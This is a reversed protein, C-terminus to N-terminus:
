LDPMKKAMYWAHLALILWSPVLIYCAFSCDEKLFKWLLLTIYFEIQFVVVGWWRGLYLYGMGPLVFNLFASVLPNKRVKPRRSLGRPIYRLDIGCGPAAHVAEWRVQDDPDRLAAYLPPIVAEDGIQGLTRVAELRIDRDKDKLALSLAPIADTGLRAACDWDQRGVFLYAEEKPNSPRWGLKSLALAAGYRVYRDCDRLTQELPEIASTDGIEGLALAAEWRIENDRDELLTIIPNVTTPDRIEGLAEVAGLRIDKNGSILAELLFDVVEQGMEGLADAAKWQIELDTHRLALILGNFDRHEKLEGINPIRSNLWASTRM